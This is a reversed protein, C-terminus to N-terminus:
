AIMQLADWREHYGLSVFDGQSNGCGAFDLSCFHFGRKVIEPIYCLALDILPIRELRSGNFSHLYL